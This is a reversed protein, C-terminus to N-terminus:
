VSACRDLTEGVYGGCNSSEPCDFPLKPISGIRVASHLVNAVAGYSGSSCWGCDRALEFTKYNQRWGNGARDLFYQFCRQWRGAVARSGGKGDLVKHTVESAVATDLYHSGNSSIEIFGDFLIGNSPM